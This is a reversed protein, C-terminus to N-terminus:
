PKNIHVTYIPRCQARHCKGIQLESLDDGPGPDLYRGAGSTRMAKMDSSAGLPPMDYRVPRASDLYRGAGVWLAAALSRETPLDLHQGAEMLLVEM